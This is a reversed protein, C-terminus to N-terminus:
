RSLAFSRGSTLTMMQKWLSAQDVKSLDPLNFPDTVMLTAINAQVLRIRAASLM